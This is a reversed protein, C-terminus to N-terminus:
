STLGINSRVTVDSGINMKMCKEEHSTFVYLKKLKITQMEEGPQESTEVFGALLVTNKSANRIGPFQASAYFHPLNCYM